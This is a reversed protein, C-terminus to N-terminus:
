LEERHCGPGVPTGVPVREVNSSSTEGGNGDPIIPGECVLLFETPAAPAAQEVPPAAPAASTGATAGTSGAEPVPVFVPAATTSTTSTSSPVARKTGDASAHVSGKSETEAGSSTVLIVGGLAVLVLVLAGLAAFLSRRRRFTGVTADM